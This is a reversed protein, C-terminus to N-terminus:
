APFRMLRSSIGGYGSMFGASTHRDTVCYVLIDGNKKEWLSLYALRRLQEPYCFPTLFWFSRAVMTSLRCTLLQSERAMLNRYIVDGGTASHASECVRPRDFPVALRVGLVGVDCFM